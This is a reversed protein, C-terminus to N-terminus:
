RYERAPPEITMDEDMRCTLLVSDVDDKDWMAEGFYLIIIDTTAGSSARM